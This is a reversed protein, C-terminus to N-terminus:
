PYAALLGAVDILTSDKRVYMGNDLQGYDPRTKMYDGLRIWNDAILDPRLEGISYDYNWKDHGPYFAGALPGKAVVPDNLGLLDVTRRGSYYPIQGAAHVAILTDPSTNAAIALGARVRRIDAKLLPANDIAWAAWPKGSVVVIAIAAVALSIPAARPTQASRRVIALDSIVRDAALGFLTFLFPMGQAIFRNAADVEPEAYDGGVWVSYACQALFLVALLAIERSRLDRYLLIAGASLMSLMLTDATAHQNFALLGNKIRDLAPAGTVKLYYTNPLADGFYLRQLGLITALALGAVAAAIVRDRVRVSRLTALYALLVLVQVVADLRVAMAAACLLGLMVARRSDGNEPFRLCLLLALSVALALVGVEMGRLSWFVLPFYFATITTAILPGFKAGPNMARSVLHVTLALGLLAIGAAIMVLLSIKPTPIHLVHLLAMFCMWLPNTFGELPAQGVNWVLGYGAALHQAYRMSVMADDILTWYVTGHVRFAMRIIFAGYLCAAAVLVPILSISM